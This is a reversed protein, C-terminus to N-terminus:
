SGALRQKLAVIRRYSVTAQARTIQGHQFATELARLEGPASDTYLLIDAGAEAALVGATIEDHGTPSELADTIAVGGFKLKGRLLGEIIPRSLAAVTGSPDYAPFGATSVMVADLGRPVLERYPQLAAARQAATPHLEELRYDTDVAGSGVGPFHKATAAVGGAQLGVAFATAYRAVASASFSFARGEQWIFARPFTPVDVVPALDMNIGLRTLYRSTASGQTAAVQVSGSAAIQPPSLFPPGAPLRKIQGGEQDVAILLPPNGGQRAARQLAGTLAKLQQQSSINKSFLIVAGVEGARVQALLGADPSTGPLGVMIRQGLLRTASAPAQLEAGLAGGSWVLSGCAGILLLALACLASWRAGGPSVLRHWFGRDCNSSSRAAVIAQALVPGAAVVAGVAVSVSNRRRGARRGFETPRRPQRSRALSREWLELSGPDGVLASGERVADVRATSL